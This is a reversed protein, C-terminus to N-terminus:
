EHSAGGRAGERPAPGDHARRPRRRARGGVRRRLAAAVRDRRAAPRAVAAARRRPPRRRAPASRAAAGARTASPPARRRRVDGEAPHPRRLARARASRATCRACSATSSARRRRTRTSRSSRRPTSCEQARDLDPPAHAGAGRYHRRMRRTRRSCRTARRSRRRLSSWRTGAARRAAAAARARRAAAAGKAAGGGGGEVDGSGGGGGSGGAQAAEAIKLLCAALNLKVPVQVDFLQERHHDMLDMTQLQDCESHYLAKKYRRLAADWEAARFHGNGVEKLQVARELRREFIFSREEAEWDAPVDGGGQHVPENPGKKKADERAKEDWEASIKEALGPVHNNVFTQAAENLGAEERSPAGTAEEAEQAAIIADLQADSFPTTTM